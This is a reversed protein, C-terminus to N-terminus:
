KRSPNEDALAREILPDFNAIIIVKVLGIACLQALSRHAPTPKIANDPTPEFFGRRALETSALGEVLNSYSLEGYRAAGGSRQSSGRRV